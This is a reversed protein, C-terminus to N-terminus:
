VASLGRRRVRNLAETPFVNTEGRLHRAAQLDYGAQCFTGTTRSLESRITQLSVDEIGVSITEQRSGLVSIM